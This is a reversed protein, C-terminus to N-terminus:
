LNNKENSYQILKNLYQNYSEDYTDESVAFKAYELAKSINDKKRYIVSLNRYCQAKNIGLKISQKFLEEAKEMNGEYYYILALDALYAKNKDLISYLIRKTTKLDGKEFYLRSIYYATVHYTPADLYAKPWYVYKNKYNNEHKFSILYFGVFVILFLPMIYKKISCYKKILNDLFTTLIIIIGTIPFILRHNLFVYENLLFTPFIFILFWVLGFILIKTDVLKKYLIFILFFIFIIDFLIEKLGLNVEYLVLPIYDPFFIKSLHLTIGDIINKTYIPLNYLYQTIAFSSVFLYRIYFYIVFIPIFIFINKVVEKSNIKYNFCFILLFYIVPAFIASEKVFLAILFFLVYLFHNIITKNKLYKIFFILSLFMFIALLTDNRAPIWVVTSTFIPHVAILIILFKLITKNLNLKSLFIYMLFIAFLFLIINIFHYYYPKGKCIISDLMFSLNLIPRYYTNEKFLFASTQFLKPLNKINSLFSLNNIIIINDDHYSFDFFISKYYLSFVISTLLLFFFLNSKLIKLM